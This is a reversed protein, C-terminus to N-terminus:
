DNTEGSTDWSRYQGPIGGHGHNADHNALKADHDLLLHTM